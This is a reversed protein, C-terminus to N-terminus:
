KAGKRRNCEKCLMQCNDIVTQGGESWPTIHDAEMEEIAFKEHCNACIGDQKEFVERKQRNDFARINLYKTDDTFIYTYIGRKNTVDDDIMLEAVKKEIEAPDFVENKYQSYLAGFDIGKMEKRYNTFVSKVWDIVNQFHEWLPLAEKNHQHGAMYDEVATDGAAWKIATELYDQRIPTGKLYKQGIEYAACGTRSFYRKADELWTGAYIANRLEQPTLKEGAINITKFWDLKERADGECFYVMLEYDLIQEQEEKELNFFKQRNFAYKNNIYECISISRQQGDLMEYTGNANKVWYFVNLPLNERVTNMVADRQKDKYIFERQYKPRINLLGRYGVVGEEHDNKYRNFLDRVKIPRLEIKM